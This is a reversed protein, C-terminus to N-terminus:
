RCRARGYAIAINNKRAIKTFADVLGPGGGWAEVTLGGWFKFMGGIQLGAPGLDAHLARGQRADM